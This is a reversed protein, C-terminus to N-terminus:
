LFSFHKRLISPVQSATDAKSCYCNCMCGLWVNVVCWFMGVSCLRLFSKTKKKKIFPNQKRLLCLFGFKKNVIYDSKVAKVNREIRFVIVFTTSHQTRFLIQFCPGSIEREQEGYAYTSSWWSRLLITIILNFANIWSSM